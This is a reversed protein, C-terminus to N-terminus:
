KESEAHIRQLSKHIEIQRKKKEELELMDELISIIAAYVTDFYELCDKESLEHIGKSLINYLIKNNILFEPLYARLFEIKEAMIKNKFEKENFPNEKKFKEFVEYILKEIIRRLYVFSGVGVGHSKLGVAKNLESIITKDKFISKFRKSDKEFESISPSQGIKSLDGNDDIKFFVHFSHLEDANCKLEIKFISSKGVLKDMIREHKDLFKINADAFYADFEESSSINYVSNLLSNQEEDDLMISSSYTIPTDRECYPCFHYKVTKPSFFIEKFCQFDNNELFKTCCLVAYPTTSDEYEFMAEHEDTYTIEKQIHIKSYLGYNFFLEFERDKFEKLSLAV